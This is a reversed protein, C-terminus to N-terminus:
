TYKNVIYLIILLKNFNNNKENKLNNGQIDMFYNKTDINVIFMQYHLNIEAIFPGSANLAFFYYSCM